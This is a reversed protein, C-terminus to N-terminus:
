KSFTFLNAPQSREALYEGLIIPLEQVGDDDPDILIGVLAELSQISANLEAWTLGYHSGSIGLITELETLHEEALRWERAEAEANRQRTTDIDNM